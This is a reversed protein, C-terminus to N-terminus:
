IKFSTAMVYISLAIVIIGIYTVYVMNVPTYLVGTIIIGSTVLLIGIILLIAGAIIIMPSLDYKYGVGLFVFMMALLISFTLENLISGSLCANLSCGYQCFIREIATINTQSVNIILAVTTNVELTQNDICISNSDQANVIHLLSLLLLIGSSVLMEKKM